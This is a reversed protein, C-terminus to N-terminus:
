GNAFYRAGEGSFTLTVPFNLPNLPPGSAKLHAGLL